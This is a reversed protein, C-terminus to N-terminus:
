STLISEPYGLGLRKIQDARWPGRYYGVLAFWENGDYRVLLTGLYRFGCDLNARPDALAVAPLACVTWATRPLLQTLGRAGAPSLATPSFRSEILVLQFALRRSVAHRDAAVVVHFALSDSLRVSDARLTVRYEAALARAATWQDVASGAMAARVPAGAHMGLTGLALFGMLLTSPRM